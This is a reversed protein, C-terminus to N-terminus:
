RSEGEALQETFWRTMFYIVYCSIVFASAYALPKDHSIMSGFNYIALFAFLGAIIGGTLALAKTADEDFRM